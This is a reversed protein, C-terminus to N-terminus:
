LDRRLRRGFSAPDRATQDEAIERLWALYEEEAKVAGSLEAPLPPVLWGKYRMIARHRGLEQESRALDREQAALFRRMDEGAPAGSLGPPSLIEALKGIVLRGALCERVLHEHVRLWDIPLDRMREGQDQDEGDADEVAFGSGSHEVLAGDGRFWRAADWVPIEVGPLIEVQERRALPVALEVPPVELAAALILLEAVTVSDRRGTELDALTSRAIGMGLEACRDALRQASLGREKRYRRVQAAVVHTVRIAWDPQQTM